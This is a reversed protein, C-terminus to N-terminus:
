YRWIKDLPKTSNINRELRALKRDIIEDVLKGGYIIRLQNAMIIVDAIEEAIAERSGRDLRRRALETVLEGMEEISKDIQHEVGYHNIAHVLTNKQETTM